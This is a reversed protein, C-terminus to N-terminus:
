IKVFEIELQVLSWHTERIRPLRSVPRHQLKIARQVAPDELRGRASVAENSGSRQTSRDPTDKEIGRRNRHQQIVQQLKSDIASPYRGYPDHDIGPNAQSAKEIRGM